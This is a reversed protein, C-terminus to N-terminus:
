MTKSRSVYIAILLLLYFLVGEGCLLYIFWMDTFNYMLEGLIIPNIAGMICAGVTFLSALRGTVPLFRTETLVYLGPFIVSMAFGIVSSLIWIGLHFNYISAFLMLVLAILFLTSHLFLFTVPSLLVVLGIGTLRGFALAVWFVSTIRAATVKSWHFQRVCFVSIFSAFSEEVCTYSIFLSLLLLIKGVYRPDHHQRHETKNAEKDSQEEDAIEFAKNKIRHQCFTRLTLAICPLVLCASISYPIFLRSSQRKIQIIPITTQQTINYSISSQNHFPIMYSVNQVDIPETESVLFPATALPSIVAGFAFGFHLAQMYMRGKSGWTRTMIM